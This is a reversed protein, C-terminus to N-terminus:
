KYKTAFYTAVGKRCTHSMNVDFVSISQSMCGDGDRVALVGSEHLREVMKVRNLAGSQPKRV